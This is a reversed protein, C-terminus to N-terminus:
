FLNGKILEVPLNDIETFYLITLYENSPVIWSFQYYLPLPYVGGEAKILALYWGEKTPFYQKSADIWNM